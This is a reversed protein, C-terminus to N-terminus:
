LPLYEIKPYFTLGDHYGKKVADLFEQKHGDKRRNIRRKLIRFKNWVSLRFLLWNPKELRKFYCINRTQYYFRQAMYAPAKEIDASYADTTKHVVISQGAYYNKFGARTIRLTYEIDDFWIFFEKIPLGVKYVARSSVLVSVFSCMECRSATIGNNGIADNKLGGPMNLPHIANDTWLVKSCVFGVDDSQAATRVLTELAEPSPVTDDDMIWTYDGGGLVSAKVGLSFGGAGGINRETRIVQFQLRASYAELYEKTGDTSCNDIVIIKHAPYTQKEIAALCEKLLTLRNYTVVVCNVKM